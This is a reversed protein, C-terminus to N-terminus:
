QGTGFPAIARIQCCPCRSRCRRYRGTGSRRRRHRWRRRCWCRRRYSRRRRSSCWSNSRPRTGCRVWARCRRLWFSHVTILSGYNCRHKESTGLSCRVHRWFRVANAATGITLYFRCAGACLFLLLLVTCRNLATTLNVSRSAVINVIANEDCASELTAGLRVGVGGGVGEHEGGQKSGTTNLSIKSLAVCGASGGSQNAVFAWPGGGTHTVEFEPM